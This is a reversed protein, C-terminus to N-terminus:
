CVCCVIDARPGTCFSSVWTTFNSLISHIANRTSHSLRDCDDSNNSLFPAHPVKLKSPFTEKEKLHVKAWPNPHRSIMIVCIQQVALPRRIEQRHMWVIFNVSWLSRTKYLLKTYIMASVYSSSFLCLLRLCSLTRSIQLADWQKTESNKFSKPASDTTLRLSSYMSTLRTLIGMLTRTGGRLPQWTRAWWTCAWTSM